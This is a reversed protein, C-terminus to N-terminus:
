DLEKEALTQMQRAAAAPSLEDTMVKELPSRMAEMVVSLAPGLGITRGSAIQAALPKLFPDNQILHDKLAKKGTPLTGFARTWELQTKAETMHEVFLRAAELQGGSLHAGVVFYRGAVLPTPTLGTDTIRPLPALGLNLGEAARHGPLAWEGDILMAARGEIFLDRAVDYDIQAPMIGREFKLDYLFRLASIMATTDLTPQGQEDVLWGGFGSLWPILWLPDRYNMALGYREGDPETLKTAMEIMAETDEPPEPLLEKNYFLVLELGLAQPVGWVKNNRSVGEIGVELFTDTFHETFVQDASLILGKVRMDEVLAANGLVIDFDISGAELARNLEQDSAHHQIDISVNPYDSVFTRADEKL